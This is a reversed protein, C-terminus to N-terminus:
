QTWYENQELKKVFVVHCRYHEPSTRLYWGDHTWFAWTLRRKPSEHVQVGCGLPALPMANYDFKGNVYEYAL